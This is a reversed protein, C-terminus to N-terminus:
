QKRKLELIVNGAAKGDKFHTWEAKLTDKDVFTFTVDHMHMDKDSKLNTARTFKFEIKNGEGNGSSRMQPQNGLMCYHTLVLDNGDPHIVSVMEHETGPFLTEVVASGGATVKYNVHIEHGEKHPDKGVWEGALQKFQEFAAPSGPAKGAPKADQGAVLTAACALLM